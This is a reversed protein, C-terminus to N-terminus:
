GRDRGRGNGRRADADRANNAGDDAADKRDAPGPGSSSGRRELPTTTPPTAPARTTTPARSTPPESAVTPPSTTPPSSTTSSGDPSPPSGGTTLAIAVLAVLVSCAAAVGALLGRRRHRDGAPVPEPPPTSPVPSRSSLVLTVDAEASTSTSRPEAIVYVCGDHEVVDFVDGMSPHRLRSRVTAEALLRASADDSADGLPHVAVARHLRRDVAHYVPGDPGRDSAGAIEYRGALVTEPALDATQVPASASRDFGPAM